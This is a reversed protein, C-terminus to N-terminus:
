SSCWGGIYWYFDDTSHENPERSVRVADANNWKSTNLEDVFEPGDVVKPGHITLGPKGYFTGCYGDYEIQEGPEADTFNEAMHANYQDTQLQRFQAELAAPTCATFVVEQYQAGM